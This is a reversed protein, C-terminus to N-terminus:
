DRKGCDPAAAVPPPRHGHHGRWLGAAARGARGDIAALGALILSLGAWAAGPVTEGLVLIGLALAVVPLLFTVLLLNTAGARALLSFYVVYGAATGAVALGGVAVWASVSVDLRWPAEVVLAVPAMLLTSGWLMGAAAVVPSLGDFRRGYLGACAYSVAAGLVAVQGLNRWSWTALADGGVLVAVGGIGLAVGAARGVTMREDRTVLHALVVTFIPTTANLIAALGSDIHTQGWVILSFPVANNLAGMVLFAGWVGPTLPLKAGVVPLLLTLALAAIGVRGLVVTLPGLGAVAIENLVFTGGWLVALLVLLGWETAGM